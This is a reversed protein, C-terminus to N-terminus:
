IEHPLVCNTLNGPPDPYMIRAQNTHDQRKEAMTFYQPGTHAILRVLILSWWGFHYINAPPNPDIASSPETKPFIGARGETSKLYKSTEM